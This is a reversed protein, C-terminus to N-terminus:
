TIDWLLEEAEIDRTTGLQKVYVKAARDVNYYREAPLCSPDALTFGHEEFWQMTRTSVIFVKGVGLQIALRELYTLMLQGKGANRYQPHVALCGIEAVTTSMGNAVLSNSYSKLMGCAIATNERTLVHMNPIDRLIDANTRSLLIGEKELPKIIQLLAPLDTEKAPRIHDYMDRSILMGSGDRTFLEKLLAGRKPSLLHARKVGAALVYM